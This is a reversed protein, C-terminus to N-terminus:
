RVGYPLVPSHRPGHLQLFHRCSWLFSRSIGCLTSRLAFRRGGPLVEKHRMQRRTAQTVCFKNGDLENTLCCYVRGHGLLCRVDVNLSDSCICQFLLNLGQQFRCIRVHHCVHLIFHRTCVSPQAGAFVMIDLVYQFVCPNNTDCFRTHIYVCSDDRILWLCLAPSWLTCDCRIMLSWDQLYQMTPQVMMVTGQLLFGVLSEMKSSPSAHNLYTTYWKLSFNHRPDSCVGHFEFWSFLDTRPSHM